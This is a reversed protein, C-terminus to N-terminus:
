FWQVLIVKVGETKRRKFAVGVGFSVLDRVLQLENEDMCEARYRCKIGDHTSVM